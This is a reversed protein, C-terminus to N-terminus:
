ATMVPANKAQAGPSEARAAARMSIKCVDSVLFTLDKKWADITQEQDSNQAPAQTL